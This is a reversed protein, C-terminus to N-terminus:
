GYQRAGWRCSVGSKATNADVEGADDEEDGFRGRRDDSSDEGDDEEVFMKAVSWRPNLLAELDFDNKEVGLAATDSPGNEGRNNGAVAVTQGTSNSARDADARELAAVKRWLAFKPSIYHSDLYRRDVYFLAIGCGVLLAAQVMLPAAWVAPPLLGAALYGIMTGVIISVALLALWKGRKREPAYETTWVSNYVVLPTQTAGIAARTLLLQVYSASLSLLLVNVGNLVVSLVLVDRQSYKELLMGSVPAMITGTVFPLASILGVELDGLGYYERIVENVAPIAGHDVGLVVNTLMILWFMRSLFGEAAPDDHPHERTRLHRLLKASHRVTLKAIEQRSAAAATDGLELLHEEQGRDGEAALAADESDKSGAAADLPLDDSPVKSLGAGESARPEVSTQYTDSCVLPPFRPDYVEGEQQEKVTEDENRVAFYIILALTGAVAAITLVLLFYRTSAPIEAVSGVADPTKDVKTKSTEQMQEDGHRNTSVAEQVFARPRTDVGSQPDVTSEDADGDGPSTAGNHDVEWSSVGHVM